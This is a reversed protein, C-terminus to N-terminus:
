NPEYEKDRDENDTADEMNQMENQNPQGTQDFASRQM